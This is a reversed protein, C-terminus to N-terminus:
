RSNGSKGYEQGKQQKVYVDTSIVCEKIPWAVLKGDELFAMVTADGRFNSFGAMFTGELKRSANIVKM